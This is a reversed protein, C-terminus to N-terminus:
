TGRKAIEYSKAAPLTLQQGTWSAVGATGEGATGEPATGTTPTDRREPLFGGLTTRREMMYRIEPADMGPHYYPPQYPDAELAQDSIPIRLHDRFDKLDQLTLKKMQHTANRGEFHPGLGYGKVTKALIVTPKGKFETAAKYAAYVKRYDHGGRKLGWIAEDTYDAVMDKTQPTRGFFHERVFGGSEAKYTQYDGDLT